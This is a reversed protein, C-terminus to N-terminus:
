MRRSGRAMDLLIDLRRLKCARILRSWRVYRGETNVTRIFCCGSRMVAEKLDAGVAEFECLANGLEAYFHADNGAIAPKLLERAM